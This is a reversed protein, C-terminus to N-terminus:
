RNIHSFIKYYLFGETLNLALLVNFFTKLIFSTTKIIELFKGFLDESNSNILNLSIYPNLNTTSALFFKHDIGNCRNIHRVPDIESNEIFGWGVILLPILISSVIFLKKTKEKGYRQVKEEQVIFCYRLMAVVFSHYTVINIQLYLTFRMLTCIWQGFIENLPHIFDTAHVFLMFPLCILCSLLYIQTVERLIGQEKKALCFVKIQIFVSFVALIIEIALYSIGTVTEEVPQYYLDIEQLISLTVNEGSYEKAGFSLFSKTFPHYFSEKKLSM